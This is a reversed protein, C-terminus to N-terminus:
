NALLKQIALRDPKGSILRPLTEVRIVRLPKHAVSFEQELFNLDLEKSGVYVIGVSQGFSTEIPEAAIESIGMRDVVLQEIQDLSVKLGGSIIVRDSRGLVKLHGDELAGLDSTLFKDGLGNALVDGTIAIRGQDISIEVGDLPLGDYVCGGATETMGYSVVVNVGMERLESVESPNPAQGGVLIASFSRLVKLSHDDLRAQALLRSLQLPVVSSYKLPHTLHGAASIFAQASFPVRTNMLVPQTEAIVSRILVNSGAIFNLPLALLWQGHGGLRESSANASAILAKKSLEIRKPVGTSGSSEVILAIDEPVENPLGHVEPMLGNTEAATIFVACKDNLVEIMLNLAGFTDNAAILRLPKV